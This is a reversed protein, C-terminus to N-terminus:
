AGYRQLILRITDRTARGSTLPIREVRGGEALVVDHGVIEELAYDAGKVLVDPVISRIVHDPTDEEFILVFDVPKLADIILARDREPTIPREPGKLRRVSADSNVAVILYDGFTKAQQLYEVHGLHLLDFVGNTFVLTKQAQKM